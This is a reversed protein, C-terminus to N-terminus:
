QLLKKLIAKDLDSEVELQKDTGLSILSDFPVALPLSKRVPKTVSIKTKIMSVSDHNLWKYIKTRYGNFNLIIYISMKESHNLVAKLSIKNLQIQTKHRHQTYMSRNTLNHTHTYM